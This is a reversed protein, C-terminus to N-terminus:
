MQNLMKLVSVAITDVHIYRVPKSFGTYALFLNLSIVLKDWLAMVYVKMNKVNIYMKGMRSLLKGGVFVLTIHIEVYCVPVSHQWQM